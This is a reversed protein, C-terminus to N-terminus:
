ILLVYHYAFPIDYLCLLIINLLVIKLISAVCAKAACASHFASGQVASGGQCGSEIFLDWSRVKLKYNKVKM